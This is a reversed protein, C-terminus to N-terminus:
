DAVLQHSRALRSRVATILEDRTLPKVLYDEVGLDRGKSIDEREGRASARRNIRASQNRGFV